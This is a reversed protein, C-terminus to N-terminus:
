INLIYSLSKLFFLNWNIIIMEQKTLKKIIVQTEILQLADAILEQGKDSLTIHTFHADVFCCFLDVVQQVSPLQSSIEQTNNLNSRSLDPTINKKNFLEKL